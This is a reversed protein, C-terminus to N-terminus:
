ESQVARYETPSVGEATKFQRVFYNYSSYGCERAIETVTLNTDSLLGKAKEIRFEIMEEIISKGFYSKYIKQLYSKSLYLNEAIEEINWSLEPNKMIRGRLMCLKEFQPNVNNESINYNFIRNVSAKHMANSLNLGMNIEQSYIGAIFDINCNEGSSFQTKKIKKLLGSIIEDSRGCSTIICFTDSDWLGCIEDGELMERLFDAFCATIKLCKPEGSQFYIKNLGILQIRLFDASIGKGSHARIMDYLKNELGKRNPLGTNEDHIMALSINKHINNFVSKIRLSELSISVSNIWYIYLQSFSMPEKGFSVASYGFFNTNYHLPAIYYAVPYPLNESFAPIIESSSFYEGSISERKVSSKSLVARVEDGNEFTLRDDLEIYKRTLYIELRKLKYIYYTYNDLRDAFEAPSGTDSIDFIMDRNLIDSELRENIKNRRQLKKNASIKQCCGCSNGFIIGGDNNHVKTCIKGTIIRYLRRFSEAGLQFNPRNFTTISPVYNKAAVTNDYGTVAIDEPVRIGGKALNEILAMASHDNGCVVAEPRDIEGSIIREALLKASNEWFDGYICCRRDYYLGHNKMSNKFGNLREESVFLNKPGTLCYIKNLGHVDILHDTIKEFASCDDIATSEFRKHDASDLLMVPKGSRELLEDIYNVIKENYFTNREYLFGDFKDSMILEFIKRDNQKQVTDLSFNHLSSLVAINCNNKFAQTIIGKLIEEQFDVHCSTIIVGILLRKKM